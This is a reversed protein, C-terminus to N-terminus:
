ILVKKNIVTERFLTKISTKISHQLEKVILSAIGFTKQVIEVPRTKEFIGKFFGTGDRGTGSGTGSGTGRSPVTAVRPGM